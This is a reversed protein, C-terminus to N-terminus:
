SIYESLYLYDDTYTYQYNNKFINAFDILNTYGNVLKYIIDPLIWKLGKYFTTYKNDKIIEPIMTPLYEMGDDVVKCITNIVYSLQKKDILMKYQNPTSVSLMNNLIGNNLLWVQKGNIDLIDITKKKKNLDTIKKPTENLFDIYKIITCLTKSHGIINAYKAINVYNNIPKSYGLDEVIVWIGNKCQCEKGIIDSKPHYTLIDCPFRTNNPYLIQTTQQLCYNNNTFNYYINSM